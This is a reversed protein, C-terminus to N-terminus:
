GDNGNKEVMEAVDAAAHNGFHAARDLFFERAEDTALKAFAAALIASVRAEAGEAVPADDDDPDWLEDRLTWPSLLLEDEDMGDIAGFEVVIWNLLLDVADVRVYRAIQEERTLTNASM